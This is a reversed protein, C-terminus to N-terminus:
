SFTTTHCWPQCYRLGMYHSSTCFNNKTQCEWWPCAPTKLIYSTLHLWFSWMGLDYSAIDLQVTSPKIKTPVLKRQNFSFSMRPTWLEHGNYIGEYNMCFIVLEHTSSNTIWVRCSFWSFKYSFQAIWLIHWVCITWGYSLKQLVLLTLHWVPVVKDTQRDLKAKAPVRKHEESCHNIKFGNTYM